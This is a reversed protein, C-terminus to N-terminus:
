SGTLPRGSAPNSFCAHEGMGPSGAGFDATMVLEGLVTQSNGTVM